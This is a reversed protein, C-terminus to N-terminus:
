APRSSTITSARYGNSLRSALGQETRDSELVTDGLWELIPPPIVLEQLIGAFAGTFIEQRTYPEPCKGRNGTCHYYVYRGKKVEGVLKETAQPTTGLTAKAFGSRGAVLADWYDRTSQGVASVVGLGTIVVRNM